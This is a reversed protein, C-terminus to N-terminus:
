PRQTTATRVPQILLLRCRSKDLTVPFEPQGPSIEGLTEGTEVDTVMSPKKVPYSVKATVPQLDIYESVAVVARDALAVGHARVEPTDTTLFGTRKGDVVIDEVKGIAALAENWCKDAFPESASM